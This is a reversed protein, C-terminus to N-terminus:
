QMGRLIDSFYIFKLREENNRCLKSYTRPEFYLINGENNRFKYRIVEQMSDFYYNSSFDLRQVENVITDRTESCDSQVKSEEESKLSKLANFFSPMLVSDCGTCLVAPGLEKNTGRSYCVKYWKKQANYYLISGTDRSPFAELQIFKSYKNLTDAQSPIRGSRCSAVVALLTFWSIGKM